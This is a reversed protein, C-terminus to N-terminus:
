KRELKNKDAVIIKGFFNKKDIKINKLFIKNNAIKSM